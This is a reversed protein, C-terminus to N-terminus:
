PRGVRAGALVREAWRALRQRDIKAAHRIDVPLVDIVLVAALRAGAVARVANALEPTALGVPAPIEPVVVAVVQQTGPPGVGVVAAGTVPSEAEIRQEVGVPTLPGDATTIVHVLRGEVWLWGTSDLHGVDGSRHWGPNRSSARETAWLRDYRDKVHAASVCIEGTIEVQDTLPWVARGLSNLPSIRIQVGPLPRGVCVGNGSGAKELEPLSIDTLPLAETMGYPTHLEAGPLVKRLRRLLPVSVPAGASLVLRIRALTSSQEANLEDATAVVNRLAAPSAFVLTADIASAAEALRVATLTGPKTVDMQPVAAGIGLAPGYLAFPAFAAVLRDSPDVDCLTRLLDLQARLQHHRYVVGKPPGTAGSTFLVAAESSPAADTDADARQADSLVSGRDGPAALEEISHAVGLMRRIPKPLDGSVLRIGPLQVAAAAAIAAPIGILYAPDASRLADAMRRWGLGADAVVIAAGARWCAYVTATLNLGPPVLLAVRHGPRVGVRRLGDALAEVRNELQPFSTMRTGGRSLEAIAPGSNAGSRAGAAVGVVLDPTARPTPPDPVSRQPRTTVKSRVWSWADEASQPADEVVLHSARPYRQVDANPLRRQLDRLSTQTFVPDRPGWMLLTPVTALETLRAAVDDLALRSPHGPELPIDAVFDGIARRRDTTSYPARLGSRVEAPIPPRSLAAAARVFTTTRVCVLDRLARSRALRILAPTARPAPVAVGTNTLILGAIQDRHRLAWGLSIPGGWDHAALVVRDAIGLEAAIADVDDIRAAFSRPRRPRESYGMGLQDIAVVRWGPDACALFRRWLYSWTPNGHVCLLTGAQPAVDNDLVHWTRLVGDADVAQVLRSWSPDVGPMGSLEAAVAPAALLSNIV